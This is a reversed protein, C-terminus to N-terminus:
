LIRLNVIEAKKRRRATTVDHHDSPAAGSLTAGRLKTCVFSRLLLGNEAETIEFRM